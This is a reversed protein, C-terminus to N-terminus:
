LFQPYYIIDGKVNFFYVTNSTYMVDEKPIVDKKPIVKGEELVFTPKIDDKFAREDSVTTRFYERERRKKM